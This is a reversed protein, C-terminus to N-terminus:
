LPEGRSLRPLDGLAGMAHRMLVRKVAPLKDVAALGLDRAMRLPPLANSFLRNLGDTVAALAVNDFRRWREYRRLLEPTGLDLGLRRGDVILEALAAIDRIGLNLGQGAIPHIVHAADGVLALRPATYRVAHLLALPYSWRPGVVEVAGLFDGFRRALEAAFGAEGLALIAPALERRETWVISSRQGTMPLIAFPGAPLFHEVAVGHHPLEHRVTCVIGTQPYVWDITHIGAARRLPSGKGDCGAVLEGRLRTGDGLLATVGGAGREARDLALPALHRLSALERARAILARRLVRNEVIYGLPATGLDRHDYHLFLPSDADAVRIERIPEAEAAILPWVGIGDLVLKSGHAIATTRGDFPEALTVAPDERDVVAVDIGASACAIGLTLGTLGGGVVILEARPREM